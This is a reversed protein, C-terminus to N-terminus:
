MLWNMDAILRRHATFRAEGRRRSVTGPFLRKCLETVNPDAKIVWCNSRRNYSLTGYAPEGDLQAGDIRLYPPLEHPKNM